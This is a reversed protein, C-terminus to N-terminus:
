NYRLFKQMTETTNSKERSTRPDMAPKQSSERPIQAARLM